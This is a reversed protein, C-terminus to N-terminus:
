ASGPLMAEPSFREPGHFQLQDFFASFAAEDFDTCKALYATGGSPTGTWAGLAIEDGLRPLPALLTGPQRRDYFSRLEEVTEDPVRDGYQIFIAGHELNHVVLAQDLPETYAGYIATQGFHPGSTPPDTNWAASTQGPEVTHQNGPLADVEQLSCGAATMAERVSGAEVSDGGGRLLFLGVLGVAVVVGAAGIALLQRGSGENTPKRKGHPRPKPPMAPM